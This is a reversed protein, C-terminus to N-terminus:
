VQIGEGEDSDEKVMEQSIRQDKHNQLAHCAYPAPKTSTLNLRCQLTSVLNNSGLIEPLHYTARLRSFIFFCYFNIFLRWGLKFISNNSNLVNFLHCKFVNAKKRDVFCQHKKGRFVGVEYSLSPERSQSRGAKGAEKRKDAWREASVESLLFRDSNGFM